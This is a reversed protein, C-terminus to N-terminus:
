DRKLGPSRAANELYIRDLQATRENAPRSLSGHHLPQTGAEQPPIVPATPVTVTRPTALHQPIAPPKGVVHPDTPKIPPTHKLIKLTTTKREQKVDAHHEITKPV